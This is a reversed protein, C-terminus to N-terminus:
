PPATEPIFTSGKKTVEFLGWKEAFSAMSFFVIKIAGNSSM